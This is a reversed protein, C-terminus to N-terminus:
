ISQNRMDGLVLMKNPSKMNHFNGISAMMSTPNANYADIILTNDATQKLESRNNHPTYEQLATNIKHTDVGFFRGITVAALANPFNYEGILRTKVENYEGDKGAKWQFTLYPSNDTVQGNVYLEDEIGYFIKNLGWAKSASKLRFFTDIKESRSFLFTQSSCM